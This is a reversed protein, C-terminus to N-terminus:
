STIGRTQELEAPPTNAYASAKAYDPRRAKEQAYLRGRRYVGCILVVFCFRDARAALACALRGIGSVKRLGNKKTNAQQLRLTKRRPVGVDGDAKVARAM